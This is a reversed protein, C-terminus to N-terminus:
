LIKEKLINYFNRKETRLITVNSPAKKIIYEEIKKNKEASLPNNGDVILQSDKARIKVTSDGSIVIPRNSLKHPAIPTIIINNVSPDLIPGGAALNYATSGTPTSIIIGDASFTDISDDGIFVELKIMKSHGSKVVCIDNLATYGMCEIMMREEKLFEDLILKKISAIGLERSSDTLYGISGLNIGYIFTKYKACLSAIGLITGDGGLSICIDCNKIFEELNDNPELIFFQSKEFIKFMDLIYDRYAYSVDRHPNSLIGIKKM